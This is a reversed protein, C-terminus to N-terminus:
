KLCRGVKRNVNNADTNGLSKKAWQLAKENDNFVYEVAIELGCGRDIRKGTVLVSM